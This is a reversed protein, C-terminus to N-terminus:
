LGLRESLSIFFAFKLNDNFSSVRGYRRLFRYTLPYGVDFDVTNIMEREMATIQRRTYAGDCVYVFDEQFISISKKGAKAEFWNLNQTQVKFTKLKSISTHFV